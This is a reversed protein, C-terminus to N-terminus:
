KYRSSKFSELLKLRKLIKLRWCIEMKRPKQNKIPTLLTMSTLQGVDLYLDTEADIVKEPLSTSTFDFHLRVMYM